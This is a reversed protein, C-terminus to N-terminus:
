LPRRAEALGQARRGGDETRRRVGFGSAKVSRRRGAPCRCRSQSRLPALPLLFAEGKLAAVQSVPGRPPGPEGGGRGAHSGDSHPGAGLPRCPRLLRGQCRPAPLSGLGGWPRARALAAGEGGWHPVNKPLGIKMKPFYKHIFLKIHRSAAATERDGKSDPAAPPDQRGPVGPCSPTSSRTTGGGGRRGGRGAAGGPGGYRVRALLAEARAVEAAEM